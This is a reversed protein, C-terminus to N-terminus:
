FAVRQTSAVQWGDNGRVCRVIWYGGRAEPVPADGARRRMYRTSLFVLIDAQNGGDRLWASGFAVTADFDGMRCLTAPTDAPCASRDNVFEEIGLVKGLAATHGPSADRVESTRKVEPDSRIRQDRNGTLVPVGLVFVRPDIALRLSALSTSEARVVTAAALEIAEQQRATARDQARIDGATL